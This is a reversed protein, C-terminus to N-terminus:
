YEVMQQFESMSLELNPNVKATYRVEHKTLERNIIEIENFLNKVKTILEEVKPDKM